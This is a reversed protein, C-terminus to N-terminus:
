ENEKEKFQKIYNDLDEQTIYGQTIADTAYLWCLPVGTISHKGAHKRVGRCCASIGTTKTTVEANRINIFIQNLEPCYVQKSKGNHIGMYQESKGFRPHKEGKFDAHNESMKKRIEETHCKGYMPNNVGNMKGTKSESMLQKSKETHQKGFFPNDKGFRHVNYMPHNEPNVLREKAKESMKKRIEDSIPYGIVGESGDTMNYGQEPNTYKKCNTKYLAILEIEIKQAEDFTLNDAYITHSFNEWGYKQIANHIVPQDKAYGSGDKGWREEPNKSTIGIYKKNNILNAHIYVCWKKEISKEM